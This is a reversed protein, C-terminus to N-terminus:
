WPEEGTSIAEIRATRIAHYKPVSLRTSPLASIGHSQGISIAASINMRSAVFYLREPDTGYGTRSSAKM